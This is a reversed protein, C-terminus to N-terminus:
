FVPVADDLLFAENAADVNRAASAVQVKQPLQLLVGRASVQKTSGEPYYHVTEGKGGSIWQAITTAKHSVLACQSRDLTHELYAKVLTPLRKVLVLPGVPDGSYRRGSVVSVGSALKQKLAPVLHKPEGWTNAGACYHGWEFIM